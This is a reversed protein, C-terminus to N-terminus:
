EHSRRAFFERMWGKRWFFVIFMVAVALMLGLAFPYGFTWELEPMNWRSRQPDFNMGYVGAIFSLPIFITAIITLMKMVENMRNSSIAQSYDRLDACMERYLELFEILQVTHDYGDRLYIETEPTLLESEDRLLQNLTERHPRISRRLLLLDHRVDHIRPVADLNQLVSIQQDLDELLDAYHDVVPFYSDIVADLLCYALYDPGAQRIRGTSHRIRKRIPDFCDGPREQFTLVYNRGLFISVQETQIEGESVSVMRAVIFLHNAYPEVKSRQHVNVVDELALDHLEFIKGIQRIVKADGLGNVNMWTVAHEKRFAPVDEVNQVEQDITERPGYAIVQIVPQLADKPAQITGPIAGPRTRRVFRPKLRRRRHSRTSM